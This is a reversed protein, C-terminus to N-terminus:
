IDNLNHIKVREKVNHVALGAMGDIHVIYLIMLGIDKKATFNIADVGVLGIAGHGLLERIAMQVIHNPQDKLVVIEIIIHIVEKEVNPDMM